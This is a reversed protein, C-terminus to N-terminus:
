LIGAGSYGVAWSYIVPLADRTKLVFLGLKGTTVARASDFALPEDGEFSPRLRSLAYM